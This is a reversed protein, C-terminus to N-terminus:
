NRSIWKREESAVAGTDKGIPKAEVQMGFVAVGGPVFALV